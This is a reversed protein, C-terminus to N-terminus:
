GGGQLVGLLAHQDLREAGIERLHNALEWQWVFTKGCWCQPGTDGDPPYYRSKNMQHDDCMHGALEKFADFSARFRKRCQPCTIM